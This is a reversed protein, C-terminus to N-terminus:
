KKEFAADFATGSSKFDIDRVYDCSEAAGAERDM